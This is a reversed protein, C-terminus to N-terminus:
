YVPHAEEIAIAEKIKLAIAKALLPPVANGVQTYQPVEIKRRQGGTTRKGLFIFSDDFSQLRAMERVTPIRNEFPILYDDPLTVMTPSVKNSSFRFRNGKRTLLAEILQNDIHAAIFKDIIESKTYVGKLKREVEHLLNPYNRIDIGENTIRKILTSQSEGERFLSFRESILPSHNSFEYNFFKGDHSIHNGSIDLTRGLKSEIQYKTEVPNHKERLEDDLILDGIAEIVTVKQHEFPTIPEPYSPVAQGDRYAIFIVRNRRQPVGFDSSDLVKPELTKYGIENFEEKLIEPVLSDDPYKRGLVGLYGDLRTDNFGEVNEMVVYRPRLDNVIRLYEKFLTNRPDDKRRLGARSFGQCPPGGFITDIIPFSKGKFIDLNQISDKIFNSPLERIDARQFFTNIGHYLGLQKHRYTYTKEVDENIDSSYVIHFGAQTIGESMGGAGCFLDIAIPRM